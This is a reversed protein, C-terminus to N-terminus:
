RRLRQGNLSRSRIQRQIICGTPVIIEPWMLSLYPCLVGMITESKLHLQCCAVYAYQWSEKPLTEERRRITKLIACPVAPPPSDSLM